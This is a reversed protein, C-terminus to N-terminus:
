GDALIGMHRAGPRSRRRHQRENKNRRPQPRRAFGVGLVPARHLEIARTVGGPDTIIVTLINGAADAM